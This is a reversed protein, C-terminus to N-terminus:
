FHDNAHQVINDTFSGFKFNFVRGLCSRPKTGNTITSGPKTFLIKEKIIFFSNASYKLEDFSVWVIIIVKVYPVEVGCVIM